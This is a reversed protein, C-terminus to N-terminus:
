DALRAVDLYQRYRGSCHDMAARTLRGFGLAVQHHLVRCVYRTQAYRNQPSAHYHAVAETWTGHRLYLDRLFRAAYRVNTRPDLMHQPSRFHEGHYRVFIQMCGVAMARHMEGSDDVMRRLAEARTEPYQGQGDINLTWPWV